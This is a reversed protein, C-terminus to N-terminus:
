GTVWVSSCRGCMPAPFRRRSAPSPALVMSVEVPVNRAGVVAALPALLPVTRPADARRALAAFLRHAREASAALVAQRTWPDAADRVSLRTLAATSEPTNVAGLVIAAHFRM